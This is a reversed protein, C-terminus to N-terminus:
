IKKEGKMNEHPPKNQQSYHIRVMRPPGNCFARYNNIYNKGASSEAAEAM